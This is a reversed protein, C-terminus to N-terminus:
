HRPAAPQQAIRHGGPQARAVGVGGPLQHHMTEIEVRRPEEERRLVGGGERRQLAQERPALNGLAVHCPEIAMDGAVRADDIERHSHIDVVPWPLDVIRYVALGGHRRPLYERAGVPAGLHGERGMRSSRM